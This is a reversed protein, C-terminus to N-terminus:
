VPCSTDPSTFKKSYEVFSLNGSAEEIDERLDNVHVPLVREVNAMMKQEAKIQEKEKRIRELILVDEVAIEIVFERRLLIKHISCRDMASGTLEKVTDIAM